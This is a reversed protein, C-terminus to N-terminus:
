PNTYEVTISQPTLHLEYSSYRNDAKLYKNFSFIEVEKNGIYGNINNYQYDIAISVIEEKLYSTKIDDDDKILERVTFLVNVSLKVTNDM